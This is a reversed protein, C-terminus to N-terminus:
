KHYLYKKLENEFELDSINLRKWVNEVWEKDNGRGSYHRIYYVKNDPYNKEYYEDYLDRAASGFIIFKSKPTVKVKELEAKFIKIHSEINIRGDKVESVINKSNLEVKKILDTMYAGKIQKASNFAYKLKRDHKGSRFNKWIDIEKSINLGIFVFNSHLLNLNEEIVKTNKENQFDWIAWSSFKGFEEKIREIEAKNYM